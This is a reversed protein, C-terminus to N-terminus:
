VLSWRFGGAKRRIAYICRSISSREVGTQNSAEQISDFEKIFNWDLDHQAVKVRLKNYASDPLKKGKLRDSLAKRREPTYEIVCCRSNKSINYFPKLTDMYFQERSLIYNSDLGDLVELVEFRIGEVGSENVVKQLDFCNHKKNEFYHIHELFRRYFGNLCKKKGNTRKASGIYFLDNNKIHYMKYIGVSTLEKIEQGTTVKGKLKSM